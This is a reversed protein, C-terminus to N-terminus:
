GRGLNIGVAGQGAVTMSEVRVTAVIPKPPAPMPDGRHVAEVAVIEAIVDAVPRDLDEDAIVFRPRRDTNFEVVLRGREAGETGLAIRFHRAHPVQAALGNLLTHANRM